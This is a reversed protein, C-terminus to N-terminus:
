QQIKKKRKKIQALYAQTCVQVCTSYLNLSLTLLQEEPAMQPNQETKNVCPKDGQMSLQRVLSGWLDAKRPGELAPIELM